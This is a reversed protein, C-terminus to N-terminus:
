DQNQSRGTLESFKADCREVCKTLAEIAKRREEIEAELSDIEAQMAFASVADYTLAAGGELARNIAKHEVSKLGSAPVYDAPLDVERFRRVAMNSKEIRTGPGIDHRPVIAKIQQESDATTEVRRQEECGVVAVLLAILVVLNQWVTVTDQERRIEGQSVRSFENRRPRM